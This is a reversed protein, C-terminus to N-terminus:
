AERSGQYMSEIEGSFSRAVVARKIKLSPTVEGHELDFDRQLVAFKKITQWRQVDANVEDVYGQVLARAEASACVEAYSRGALAGGEEAAWKMIEVEDLTVLASCFNRGDGVVVINAVYPCVTKFRNELDSPAVYKGGSTKILDKKRDTITVFGDPSLEAIDGTRFWGDDTFVDETLEPKNHYGRMIGPGRLLLEGDEEALRGEMGPLLRGCTGTRLTDPLNVATAASSETMGYGELIPVGAGAFFFGIEPPLAASGSICGRIRGGFAERIKGYVLRDALAHKAALVGTVQGTGSADRSRQFEKAYDRAVEAAWRFIRYKLAGGERAKAAVGNYVKEFVRPVAVMFTPEVVPLNTIIRDQRGDVATEFGCAIHVSTLVKGFVHSLPLWLYQSDEPHVLGIAQASRAEFSWCDHVLRVGKPRGTTGSTYILTALQDATIRGVASEVLGPEEALRGAGRAELDALSLVEFPDGEETRGDGDFLVVAILEPLEAARERVKALQQANDAILVRSGSDALIYATEEANTTPYVTTVAAGACMVGFDALIWEIRTASAIAVREEARVGLEALGAAVAQVRELAQAWTLSRWEERGGGTDSDPIPYRYAVRDPTEKVRELLLHAVSPPRGEIM